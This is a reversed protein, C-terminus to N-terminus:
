GQQRGVVNAPPGGDCCGALFSLMAHMDNTIQTMAHTDNTIQTMAHMDNTIQTMAHTDNTIQTMAHTDNTIQTMALSLSLGERSPIYHNVAFHRGYQRFPNSSTTSLDMVHHMVPHMCQKKSVNSSQLARGAADEQQM